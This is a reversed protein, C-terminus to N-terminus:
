CEDFDLAFAFTVQIMVAKTRSCFAEFSHKGLALGGPERRRM